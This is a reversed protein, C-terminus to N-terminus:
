FYWAVVAKLEGAQIFPMAMVAGLGVASASRGAASTDAAIEDRLVPIGTLWAQGIFGEAKAIRAQAYTTTALEATHDCDGSQFVLAERTENPVWIEFRRAMPTDRASLFSVTWTRGSAHAYPIGLGRNIGIGVAQEWRLFTRSNFLDKVILPMRSKWARGPLGYGRLFRTHRADFAFAEANEYCGGVLRMDHSKDPDNHWLEIAGVQSDDHGCVLVAVAMLYDGSFVPLAVASALATEPSAGALWSGRFDALIIPHGAAWARGPLGEGRGFRARESIARLEGLAGYLGDGLQLQLRDKTPVWVEAIRIFSNMTHKSSVNARSAEAVPLVAINSAVDNMPDELEEPQPAAIGTVADQLPTASRRVPDRAQAAWEPTQTNSCCSVM